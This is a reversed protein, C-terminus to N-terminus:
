PDRAGHLICYYEAYTPQKMGFSGGVRDTLVRLQDRGIGLVGAIYNRFGFVGQSGVHLTWHRREPDYQAVASRPELANVVIRNNRLRAPLPPPSKRATGSISISGSMGRCTTMFFRHARHRRPAPPLSQRCHSSKSEWWRPPTRPKLSPKPSSRPSRKASMAFRAPRSRM